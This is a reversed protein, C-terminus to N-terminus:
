ASLYSIGGAMVGILAAQNEASESFSILTTARTTAQNALHNLHFDLGAEDPERHLINQYLQVVFQRDTLAGYTDKFEQSTVFFNSVAEMSAGSDGVGIWYGLGALDPSRNFAAQYLRFIKGAVGDIDLAMQGDDFRIREVGALTDTGAGSRAMTVMSDSRAVVYDRRTGALVLTDIGDGGRITESGPAGYITDAGAGADIIGGAGNGYITDDYLTGIANDIVVDYAISVNHISQATSSFGGARLDILVKSSCASFDFTDNGGADWICRPLTADEFLYTDNGTRHRMNAGYLYQIAQIDYLMPTIPEKRTDSFATSHNYSMQTYDRNDVLSPLFPGAAGQGTADYDGPHKLGLNHGLEHILVAFGYTGLDPRASTVAQNNLFLAVSAGTGDPLYAYAASRDVSQDNTGFELDGRKSGTLEVFTIDAVASWTALADRVAQKQRENMPLYGNADESMNSPLFDGFFSYTLTVATRATSKWSSYVLADIANNGSVPPM